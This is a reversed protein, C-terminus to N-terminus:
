CVLIKNELNGPFRREYQITFDQAILDAHWVRADSKGIVQWRWYAVNYGIQDREGVVWDGYHSAGSTTAVKSSACLTKRGVYCGM